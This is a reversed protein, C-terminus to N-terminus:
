LGIIAPDTNININACDGGNSVACSQVIMREELYKVNISDKGLYNLFPTESSNPTRREEVNYLRM